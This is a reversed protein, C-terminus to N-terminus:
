SALLASVQLEEQRKTPKENMRPLSKGKDKSATSCDEQFDLFINISHLGQLLRLIEQFLHFPHHLGPV